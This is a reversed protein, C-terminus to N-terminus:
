IFSNILTTVICITAISGTNIAFRYVRKTKDIEYEACKKNIEDLKSEYFGKESESLKRYENYMHKEAFGIESKYESGYKFIMRQIVIIDDKKIKSSNTYKSNNKVKVYYEYGSNVEKFIIYENNLLGSNVSEMRDFKVKIDEIYICDWIM